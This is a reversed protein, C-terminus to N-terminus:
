TIKKARTLKEQIKVEMKKIKRNTKTLSLKWMKSEKEMNSLEDAM